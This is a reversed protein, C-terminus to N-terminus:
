TAPQATSAEDPDHVPAEPTGKVVGPPRAAIIQRWRRLEDAMFTGRKWPSGFSGTFSGPIPGFAWGALLEPFEAQEEDLNMREIGVLNAGIARAPVGVVKAGPPVDRVVAANMGVMALSGVVVWQHVSVGIGLGARFMVRCHGALTAHPAMSVEDEVLCDHAVHAGHMLYCRAGVRTQFSSDAKSRQVVAGERIVTSEGVVVPADWSSGDGRVEAAAGVVAGSFVEVGPELILPGVLVAGPHVVCGSSVRVRGRAEDIVARDHISSRM